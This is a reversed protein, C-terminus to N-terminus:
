ESVGAGVAVREPARVGREFAGREVREADGHGREVTACREDFQARADAGRLDLDGVDFPLKAARGLLDGVVRLPEFVDPAPPLEETVEPPFVTVRQGVHGGVRFLGARSSWSSPYSAGGRRPPAGRARGHPAPPTSRATRPEVRPQRM